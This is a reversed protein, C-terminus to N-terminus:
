KSSSSNDNMSDSSENNLIQLQANSLEYAFGNETVMLGVSGDRDYAVRPAPPDPYNGAM